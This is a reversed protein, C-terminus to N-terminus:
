APRFVRRSFSAGIRAAIHPWPWRKGIHETAEVDRRCDGHQRVIDFDNIVHRGLEATLRLKRIKQIALHRADGLAVPHKPYEREKARSRSM